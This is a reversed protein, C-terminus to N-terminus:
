VFGGFYDGALFGIVLSFLIVLVWVWWKSKKKPAQTGVPAGPKASATAPTVSKAGPKVSTVAAGPKAPATVSAAPKIPQSTQPQQLVM